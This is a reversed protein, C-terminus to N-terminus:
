LCYDCALEFTPVPTKRLLGEWSVKFFGLIRVNLESLESFDSIFKKKWEEFEISINNAIKKINHDSADWLPNYEIILQNRYCLKHHFIELDSFNCEVDNKLSKNLAARIGLANNELFTFIKSMTDVHAKIIGYFLAGSLTEVNYKTLNKDVFVTAYYGYPSFYSSSYKKNKSCKLSVVFPTYRESLKTSIKDLASENFIKDLASENFIFKPVLHTPQIIEVINEGVCIKTPLGSHFLIKDFMQCLLDFYAGCQMDSLDQLRTLLQGYHKKIDVTTTDEEM